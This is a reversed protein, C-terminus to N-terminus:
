TDEMNQQRTGDLGTAVPQGDCLLLDAGNAGSRGVDSINHNDRGTRDVMQGLNLVSFQAVPLNTAMSVM